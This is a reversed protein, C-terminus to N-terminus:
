GYFERLVQEYTETSILGRKRMNLLSIADQKRRAALERLARLLLTYSLLDKMERFVAQEHQTDRVGLERFENRELYYLMDQLEGKTVETVEAVRPMGPTISM